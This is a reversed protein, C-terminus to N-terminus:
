LGRWRPGIIEGEAFIVVDSYGPLYMTMHETLADAAEHARDEPVELVLEDHVPLWFTRGWGADALNCMAKGLVDRGTSQITYNGNAYTRFPDAPIVRGFPNVIYNKEAQADTWQVLGAYTARWAVWLDYAEPVSIGLTAAIKKPMAGYQQAFDLTKAKHYQLPSTHKDQFDPFVSKATKVHQSVGSAIIDLLAPDGSLAAGIRIEQNDYDAGVFVHGERAIFCGRLIRGKEESKALTQMAPGTVSMRATHAQMTNINPHVFGFGGEAHRLITTLNTLLNANRMVRQYARLVPGVEDDSEYALLLLPLHDKDLSKTRCGHKALWDTRLYSSRAKYGTRDIVEAEAADFEAQTEALADATWGRDVRMGRVSTKVM